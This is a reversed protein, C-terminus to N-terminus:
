QTKLDKFVKGDKMVFNVKKLALINELPNDPTAIIDASMKPKILGRNEKVGVLQAANVTMAKLIEKPSIGADLYSEIQSMSGSGRTEVPDDFILDTGYAITVGIQYARKLREANNNHLIKAWIDPYGYALWAKITFDTPVLVVNNKKALELVDNPMNYGHEISAVGAQAANRAGQETQAHAALKLGAAAAEDVMFKIDESSYIYPQDDVVIKILKAGFHINQRIAKRMEDRTDAYLYEPEGLGTKEPQLQLQGGYPAIIRGANIVTPGPVIGAEIAKRLDTDAYNGNNGVDRITTFGAELMSRANVTAEIARYGTTLIITSFFVDGKEIGQRHVTLAMHTHCDFLGPLVTEGSLDIIKTGPPINIGAGVAKIRSNEILIVQNSLTTGSEVDVLKGAKIAILEPPKGGSSDLRIQAAASFTFLFTLILSVLFKCSQSNIM